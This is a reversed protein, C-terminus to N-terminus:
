PPCRTKMENASFVLDHSRAVVSSAMQPRPARHGAIVPVGCVCRVYLLMELGELRVEASGGGDGVSGLGTGTTVWGPARGAPKGPTDPSPTGGEASMRNTASSTVLATM